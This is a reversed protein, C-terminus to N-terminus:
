FHKIFASKNVKNKVKALDRRATADSSYPGILLKGKKLKYRFGNKKIVSLFKKSPQTSFSGVQIYYSYPSKAKKPQTKKPQTKKPKDKVVPKSAPKKVVPASLEVSKQVQPQEEQVSKEQVSEQQSPEKVVQEDTEDPLITEPKIQEEQSPAPDTLNGSSAKAKNILTEEMMSSLQDLEKKDAILDQDSVDLKLEPSILEEHKEVIVTTNQDNEGIYLRTMVIAIILLAIFLAIFALIGKNKNKAPKISDDIILDGLYNDKKM